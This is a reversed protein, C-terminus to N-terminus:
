NQLVWTQGNYDDWEVVGIGKVLVMRLPAIIAGAVAGDLSITEIIVAPIEMGNFAYNEEYSASYNDQLESTIEEPDDDEFRAISANIGVRNAMVRLENPGFLFISVYVQFGMTNTNGPFALNISESECQAQQSDVRCDVYSREELDFTREVVVTATANADIRNQYIIEQDVENFPLIWDEFGDLIDYVIEDMNPTPETELSCGTSFLSSILCIVFFIKLNRM